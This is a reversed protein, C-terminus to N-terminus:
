PERFHLQKASLPLKGKEIVWLVGRKVGEFNAYLNDEIRQKRIGWLVSQKGGLNQM